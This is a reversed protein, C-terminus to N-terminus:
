LILTTTNSYYILQHYCISLLINFTFIGYRHPVSILIDKIGHFIKLFIYIYLKERVCLYLVAKYEHSFTCHNNNIYYLRTKM